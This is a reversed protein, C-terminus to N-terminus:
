AARKLADFGLPTCTLICRAHRNSRAPHAHRQISDRRAPGPVGRFVLPPAFRPLLLYLLDIGPVPHKDIHAPLCRLHGSTVPARGAAFPHPFSRGGAAPTGRVGIPALSRPLTTPHWSRPDGVSPSGQPRIQSVHQTGLKLSFLHKLWKCRREEGLAREQPETQRSVARCVMLSHWCCLSSYSRCRLRVGIARHNWSRHGPVLDRGQLQRRSRKSLGDIRSSSRSELVASSFAEM